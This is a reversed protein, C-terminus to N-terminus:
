YHAGYVHKLSEASLRFYAVKTTFEQTALVKRETFDRRYFSLGGEVVVFLDASVAHAREPLKFVVPTLVFSAVEPSAGEVPRLASHADSPRVQAAGHLRQVEAILLYWQDMLRRLIGSSERDVMGGRRYGLSRSDAGM